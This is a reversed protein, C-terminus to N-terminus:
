NMVKGPPLTSGFPLGYRNFGGDESTYIDDPWSADMQRRIDEFSITNM